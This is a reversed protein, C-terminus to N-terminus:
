RKWFINSWNNEGHILRTVDFEPGNRRPYPGPMDTLGYIYDLSTEFLNALSIAQDITPRRRGQEIRSYDSQNIGIAAQVKQQSYGCKQRLVKLHEGPIMKKEIADM